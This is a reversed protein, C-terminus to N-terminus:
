CFATAAGTVSAGKGTEEVGTDAGFSAEPGITKLTLEPVLTNAAEAVDV